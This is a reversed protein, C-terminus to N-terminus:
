KKKFVDGMIDISGDDRITWISVQGQNKVKLSKGDIEYEFEITQNGILGSTMKLKNGSKFELSTIGTKSPGVPSYKGNISPGCAVLVFAATLTILIANIRKM